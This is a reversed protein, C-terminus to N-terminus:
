GRESPPPSLILEAKRVVGRGDWLAFTEACIREFNDSIITRATGKCSGVWVTVTPGERWVTMAAREGQSRLALYAKAVTLADSTGVGITGDPHITVPPGDPQQLIAELEEFTPRRRARENFAIIREAAEKADDM